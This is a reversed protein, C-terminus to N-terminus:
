YGSGEPSAGAGSSGSGGSQGGLRGQKARLLAALLELNVKADVNGPDLEVAQRFSGLSLELYREAGAPDLGAHEYLLIGNLNAARSARAADGGTAALKTLMAELKGHEALAADRPIGPLRTSAFLLLAARYERDDNVGLLSDAIRLRLGPHQDAAVAPRTLDRKASFVADALLALLVAGALLIAALAVLRTRGGM